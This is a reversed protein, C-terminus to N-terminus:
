SLYLQPQALWAPLLPLPPVNGNMRFRLAVRPSHDAELRSREKKRHRLMRYHPWTRRVMSAVCVCVCPLVVRSSHDAGCLPRYRVVCLVRLLCVDM